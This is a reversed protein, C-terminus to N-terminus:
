PVRTASSSQRPQADAAPTAREPRVMRRVGTSYAALVKLADLKALAREGEVTAYGVVVLLLAVWIWVLVTHVRALVRKGDKLLEASRAPSRTGAHNASLATCADCHASARAARARQRGHSLARRVIAAAIRALRAITIGSSPMGSTAFMGSSKVRLRRAM